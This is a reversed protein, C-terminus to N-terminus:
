MVRCNSRCILMLFLYQAASKVIFLQFPLEGIDSGLCVGTVYAFIPKVSAKETKRMIPMQLKGPVRFQNKSPM